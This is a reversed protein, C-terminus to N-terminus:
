PLVIEGLQFSSAAHEFDEEYVVGAVEARTAGELSYVAPAYTKTAFIRTGMAGSRSLYATSPQCEDAVALTDIVSTCGVDSFLSQTPMAIPLCRFSGDAAAAFNCNTALKTDYWLNTFEAFRDATSLLLRKVRGESEETEPAFTAFESDAAATGVAYYTNTDASELQCNPGAARYREIVETALVNTASRTVAGCTGVTDEIVYSPTPLECAGVPMVTAVTECLIDAFYTESTGGVPMCHNEGDAGLRNECSVSLASDVKLLSSACMQSGDSGVFNMGSLRTSDSFAAPTAGVFDDDDLPAGAVFYDGAPAVAAVCTGLANRRFINNGGTVPSAAGVLRYEILPAGCPMASARLTRTFQRPDEGGQVMALASTCLADQFFLTTTAADSIPFCTYAGADRALYNCEVDHLADIIRYEQRAGPTPEIYERKLRNGSSSECVIPAVYPIAADFQEGADV